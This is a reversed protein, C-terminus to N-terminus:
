LQNEPQLFRVPLFFRLLQVICMSYVVHIIESFFNKEDLVCDLREHYQLQGEGWEVQILAGHQEPILEEGTETATLRTRESRKRRSAM